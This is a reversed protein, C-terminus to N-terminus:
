HPKVTVGVGNNTDLSTPSAVQTVPGTCGFGAREGTAHTSGLWHSGVLVTRSEMQSCASAM